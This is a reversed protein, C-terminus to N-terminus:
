PKPWAAVVLAPLIEGAPGRLYTVRHGWPQGDLDPSVIVVEAGGRRALVALEAAHWVQNSTGVSIFMDASAAAAEAREMSQVPLMEEFMVVDPRLMGGCATCLPLVPAEAWPLRAGCDDCRLERLNGHLEIVDRSGARHHLGDINQTVLTLKAVQEAMAVIAQHGANPQALAVGEARKRYWEYSEPLNARYGRPNAYKQMNAASWLGDTGTRYTPIGSEASIGAGTFVVVSQASRLMSAADDLPMLPERSRNTSNAPQEPSVEHDEFSVVRM